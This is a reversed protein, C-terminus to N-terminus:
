STLGLPMAKGPELMHLRRDIDSCLMGDPDLGNRVAHWEDSSRICRRFREAAVRADKTLYVRGGAEVVLEDLSDLLPALEPDGVPIDLALTWGSTPFGLM